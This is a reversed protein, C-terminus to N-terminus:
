RKNALFFTNEVRHFDQGILIKSLQDQNILDFIIYYISNYLRNLSEKVM